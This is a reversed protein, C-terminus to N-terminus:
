AFVDSALTGKPDEGFRNPGPTGPLLMLVLYAISAILGIFPIIGVVVLGLFWWGSMDRDHLRRVNVAVNPIVTALWWLPLLLGIGSLLGSYVVTSGAPSDFSSREPSGFGFVLAMIAAVVIVNLLTFMWFEMRRSRGSFDFYRKLPLIMWHMSLEGDAFAAKM